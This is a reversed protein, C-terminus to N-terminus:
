KETLTQMAFGLCDTWLPCGSDEIQAFTGNFPSNRFSNKVVVRKEMGIRRFFHIDDLGYNGSFDEDSRALLGITHAPHPLTKNDALRIFPLSNRILDRRKREEDQTVYDFVSQLMAENLTNDIDYTLVWETPSMYMGLNRVGGVNWVIDQEIAYAHINLAPFREQIGGPTKYNAQLVRQASHASGDDVIALQITSWDISTFSEWSEFQKLLRRIDNYYVLLITLVSKQPGGGRVVVVPPKSKKL